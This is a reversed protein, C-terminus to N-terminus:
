RYLQCASFVAAPDIAVAGLNDVAHATLDLVGRTLDAVTVSYPANTVSGLLRAGAYFEVRAVAGDTDSANAALTVESGYTVTTGDAPATLAVLPSANDATLSPM